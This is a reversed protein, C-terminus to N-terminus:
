IGDPGCVFGAPEGAPEKSERCENADLTDFMQMGPVPLLAVPARRSGERAGGGFAAEIIETGWRSPRGTGTTRTASPKAQDAPRRDGRRVRRQGFVVSALM